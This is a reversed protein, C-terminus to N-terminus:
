LLVSVEQACETIFLEVFCMSTDALKAELYATYSFPAFEPLVLLGFTLHLAYVM